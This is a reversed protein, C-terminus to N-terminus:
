NHESDLGSMSFIYWRGSRKVLEISPSVNGVDYEVISYLGDNSLVVPNKAKSFNLNLYQKTIDSCNQRSAYDSKYASSLRCLCLSDIDGKEEPDCLNYLINYNKTKAAYIVANLVNEPRSYDFKPVQVKKVQSFSVFSCIFLFFLFASKKM